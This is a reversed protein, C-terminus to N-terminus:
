RASHPIGMERAHALRSAERDSEALVHRCSQCVGALREHDKRRMPLGCPGACEPLEVVGPLPKM